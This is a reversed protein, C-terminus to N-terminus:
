KGVQTACALHQLRALAGHAGALLEWFRGPGGWLEKEGNVPMVPSRNHKWAAWGLATAVGHGWSPKSSGRRLAAHKGRAPGSGQSAKTHECSVRRAIGLAAAPAARGSSVAGKELRSGKGAPPLFCVAKGPKPEAAGGLQGPEAGGPGFRGLMEDGRRRVPDQQRGGGPEWSGVTDKWPCPLVDPSLSASLLSCDSRQGDRSLLPLQGRTQGGEPQNSLALVPVRRHCPVARRWSPRPAAAGSPDSGPPCPLSRNPSGSRHLHSHARCSSAWSIGPGDALGPSAALFTGPNKLPVPLEQSAAPGSGRPTAGYWLLWAGALAPVTSLMRPWVQCAEGCLGLARSVSCSEPASRLLEPCPNKTKKKAAPCVIYCMLGLM